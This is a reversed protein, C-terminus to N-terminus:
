FDLQQIIEIGYGFKHACFDTNFDFTNTTSVGVKLEGDTPYDVIIQWFYVGNTM